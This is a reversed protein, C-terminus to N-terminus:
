QIKIKGFTTEVTVTKHNSGKSFTAKKTNDASSTEFHPTAPLLLDGYAARLDFRHNPQPQVDINVESKNALVRVNGTRTDTKLAIVGYESRISCDNELGSLAIDSRKTQLEIPGSLHQGAVNGYQSEVHISGSLDTLSFTCFEGTLRIPATIKELRAKGYKNSLNTPCDTPVRLLIRAKLNSAPLKKGTGIYARIYIKKGISNTSFQWADLDYKASDLNPHKASLEARISIANQGSPAPEVEIEAKECNIELSYGAKWVVTKQITKTVVQLQTQALLRSMNLLLFIFILNTFKM